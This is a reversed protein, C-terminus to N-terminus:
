IKNIKEIDENVLKLREEVYKKQELFKRKDLYAKVFTDIYKWTATIRKESRTKQMLGALTELRKDMEESIDVTVIRELQKNIAELSNSLEDHTNQAFVKYEQFEERTFEMESVDTFKINVKGVPVEGTKEVTRQIKDGKRVYMITEEM